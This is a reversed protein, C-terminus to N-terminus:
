PRLAWFAEADKKEVLSIYHRFLVDDTEQGLKKRTGDADGTKVYDM